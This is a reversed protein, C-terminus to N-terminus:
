IKFNPILHCVRSHIYSPTKYLMAQIKIVMHKPRPIRFDAGRRSGPLCKSLAPKSAALTPPIIGNITSGLKVVPMVQRPETDAREATM